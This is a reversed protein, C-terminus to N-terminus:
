AAKEESFTWFAIAAQVGRQPTREDILVFVGRLANTLWDRDGCQEVWGCVPLPPDLKLRENLITRGTNALREAIEHADDFMWGDLCLQQMCRREPSGVRLRGELRMFLAERKTKDTPVEVRDSRTWKAIKAGTEIYWDHHLLAYLRFTDRITEPEFGHGEFWGSAWLLGPADFCHEGAKGKHLDPHAWYHRIADNRSMTEPTPGHRRAEEREAITAAKKLRGSPSRNGKTRRNAM